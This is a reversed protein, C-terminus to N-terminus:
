QTQGDPTITFSVSSINDEPRIVLTLTENGRSYGNAAMATWGLAPLAQRYFHEIKQPPVGGTARTEIFRGNPKDFIVISDTDERLGPMVPLDSIAKSFVPRFEPIAASTDAKGPFSLGIVAYLVVIFKLYRIMM